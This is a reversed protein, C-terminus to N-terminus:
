GRLEILEDAPGALVARRWGQERPERPETPAPAAVVRLGAATLRAVEADFDEVELCYHYGTGGTGVLEVLEVVAGGAPPRLYGIRRPPDGPLAKESYLTFGLVNQYFQAAAPYDRASVSVHDIGRIM